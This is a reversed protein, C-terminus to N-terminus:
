FKLLLFAKNTQLNTALKGEFCIGKISGTKDALGVLVNEQQKRAEVLVRIAKQYPGYSQWAEALVTQNGDTLFTLTLHFRTITYWQLILSLVSTNMSFLQHWSLIMLQIIYCKTAKRISWLSHLLREQYSWHYWNTAIRSLSFWILKYSKKIPKIVSCNTAKKIPQM